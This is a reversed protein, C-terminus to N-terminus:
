CREIDSMESSRDVLEKFKKSDGVGETTIEFAIVEKTETNVDFQIKLYGKRKKWKKRIWEERNTVKIGSADIAIVVPQNSRFLAESLDLNLKSVRRHITSHDPVKLEPVLRGLARIFDEIQRFPLHFLVYLVGLFRFFTDPYRYPRGNKGNNMEALDKEWSKLSELDLLLEGRRVHKENYENWDM